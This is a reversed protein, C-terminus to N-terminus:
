KSLEDLVDIGGDIKALYEKKDDLQGQLLSIEAVLSERQKNLNQRIMERHSLTTVSEKNIGFLENIDKDM